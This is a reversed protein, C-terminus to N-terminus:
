GGYNHHATCDPHVYPKFGEIGGMITQSVSGILDESFIDGTWHVSDARVCAMADCAISLVLCEAILLCETCYCCEAVPVCEVHASLMAQLCCGAALCCPQDLRSCHEAPPESLCVTCCSGAAISYECRHSAPHKSGSCGMQFPTVDDGSPSGPRMATGNTGNAIFRTIVDQQVAQVTCVACCLSVASLV